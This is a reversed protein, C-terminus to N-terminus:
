RGVHFLEVVSECESIRNGTTAIGLAFGRKPLASGARGPIRLDGGLPRFLVDQLFRETSSPLALGLATSFPGTCLRSFSRRCVPQMLDRASGSSASM